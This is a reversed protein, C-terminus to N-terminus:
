RRGADVGYATSAEARLAVAAGWRGCYKGGDGWWRGVTARAAAGRVTARAAVERVQAATEGGDSGGADREERGTEGSESEGGGADGTFLPSGNFVIALRSGRAEMKSLMHQLFLLAGDSM